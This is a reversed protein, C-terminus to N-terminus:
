EITSEICDGSIISGVADGVPCGVQFAVYEALRTAAARRPQLVHVRSALFLGVEVRVLQCHWDEDCNVVNVQFALRPDHRTNYVM